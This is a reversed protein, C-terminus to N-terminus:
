KTFREIIKSKIQDPFLSLNNLESINVWMPNYFRKGEKMKFYEESDERLKPEGKIYKCLYYYHVRDGGRPNKDKMEYFLEGVEVEINTEEKIERKVTDKKDENTEIGGGPIVYYEEKNEKTLNIRHILLIKNDFVCVGGARTSNNEM